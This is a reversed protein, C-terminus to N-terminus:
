RAGIMDLNVLFDLLVKLAVDIDDAKVLESPHGGVGNKCRVALMGVPCLSGLSAGGNGVGLPLLFGSSANTEVAMSLQNVFRTDCEVAAADYIPEIAVTCRRRRAIGKLTRELDRLAMRRTRDVNSRLEIALRAVAPIADSSGPEVRINSATAVLGTVQRCLIETALVMEAAAALADRRQAFPVTCSHGPAGDVTVALRTIGSISTVVGIPVGEDELMTGQEIYVELFGLLSAPNRGLGGIQEPRCGFETLARRMTTGTADEADLLKVDWHGAIARSGVPVPTFRHGVDDGFALLEIAYPLRRAKRNLEAVAAIALVVGLCGAYKGANRVTDIHSGILLARAGNRDAEYRGTVTGAADVSTSMGADRMWSQVLQAAAQHEKSLYRRGANPGAGTKAALEDLRECILSAPKRRKRAPM